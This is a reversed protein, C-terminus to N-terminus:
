QSEKLYEVARQLIEINDGALGLVSNCRGCLLGRIKGTTHCHDVCLRSRKSPKEDVHVGCIKCCYNQAVEMEAIETLSLGYMKKAYCRYAESNTVGRAKRRKYAAHRQCSKTCFQQNRWSLLFGVGCELCLKEKTM